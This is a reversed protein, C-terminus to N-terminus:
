RPLEDFSYEELFYYEKMMKTVREIQENTWLVKDRTVSPARLVERCNEVYTKPCSVGLHDCLKRLTEEPRLLMEHAPIDIVADKCHLKVFQTADALEFYHEIARDLEEKNEIQQGFSFLCPNFPSCALSM